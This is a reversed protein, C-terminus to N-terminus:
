FSVVLDILLKPTSDDLSRRTKFKLSITVEEDGHSSSTYLDVCANPLSPVANTQAIRAHDISLAQGGANNSTSGSEKGSGAMPRISLLLAVDGVVSGGFNGGDERHFCRHIEVSFLRADVDPFIASVQTIARVELQIPMSQPMDKGGSACLGSNQRRIKTNLNKTVSDYSIPECVVVDFVLRPLNWGSVSVINKRIEYKDSTNELESASLKLAAVRDIVSSLGTLLASSAENGDLAKSSQEVALELTDLFSHARRTVMKVHLPSVKGWGPFSDRLDKLLVLSEGEMMAFTTRLATDVAMLVANLPFSSNGNAHKLVNETNTDDETALAIDCLFRRLLGARETLKNHELEFDTLLPESRQTSYSHHVLPIEELILAIGDTSSPCNPLPAM